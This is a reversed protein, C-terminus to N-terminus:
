ILTINAGLKVLGEFFGPWSKNVGEIKDITGGYKCCYIASAMIIRHDDSNNLTRRDSEKYKLRETGTIIGGYEKQLIMLVPGLDPNDTIDVKGNKILDSFLKPYNKDGQCSNSDLGAVSVKASFDRSKKLYNLAMIYAAQTYDREIEVKNNLYKQNGSIIITKEDVFTAKVGFRNMVDITLDIYPKSTIENEIYIASCGPLVALTMLMGSIYQSTKSGDIHYEGSSLNGKLRITNDKKKFLFGKDKCLEEYYELPREFLRPKGTLIYETNKTLLYPIIFRFTAGSEDCDIVKNERISKFANKAAEIDRGGDSIDSYPNINGSFFSCFVARICFSKSLPATIEGSLKSPLIKAIM